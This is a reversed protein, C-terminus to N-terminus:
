WVAPGPLSILVASMALPARVYVMSIKHEARLM